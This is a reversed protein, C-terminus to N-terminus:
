PADGESEQKEDARYIRAGALHQPIPRDQLVFILAAIARGASGGKERALKLLEAYLVREDRDRQISAPALIGMGHLPGMLALTAALLDGERRKIEAEIIATFLIQDKNTEKWAAVVHLPDDEALQDAESGPALVQILMGIAGWLARTHEFIEWFGMDRHSPHLSSLGKDPLATPHPRVHIAMSHGKYDSSAGNEGLNGVGAAKLRQRVAVPAFKGRLTKDDASLWEEMNSPTLSFDMLLFQIEMVDRMADFTVAGYGALAAELATEFDSTSREILFAVRNLPPQAHFAQAIQDLRILLENAGKLRVDELLTASMEARRRHAETLVAGLRPHKTAIEGLTTDYPPPTPVM